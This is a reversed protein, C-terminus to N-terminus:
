RDINGRPTEHRRRGKAQQQTQDMLMPCLGDFRCEILGAIAIDARRM